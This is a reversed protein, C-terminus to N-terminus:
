GILDKLTREGLEARTVLTEGGRIYRISVTEGPARLGIVNILERNNAIRRGNVEIIGSTPKTIGAVLKLLTSKGSGNRGIVAFTGGERINFTVGSLATFTEDPRLEQILNGKLLASKLTRFQKRHSYRQYIKTLDSVRVATGM